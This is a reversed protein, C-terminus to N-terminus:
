QEDLIEAILDDVAKNAVTEGYREDLIARMKDVIEDHEDKESKLSAQIIETGDVWPKGDSTWPVLIIWSWINNGKTEGTRRVLGLCSYPLSEWGMTRLLDKGDPMNAADRETM